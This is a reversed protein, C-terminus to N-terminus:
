AIVAVVAKVACFVCPTVPMWSVGDPNTFFHISAQASSTPISTTLVPLNMEKDKSGLFQVNEVNIYWGLRSELQHSFPINAEALVMWTTASANFFYLGAHLM